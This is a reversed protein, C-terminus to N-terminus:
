ERSRFSVMMQECNEKNHRILIDSHTKGFNDHKVYAWFAREEIVEWEQPENYIVRSNHDECLM